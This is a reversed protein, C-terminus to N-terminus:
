FGRKELWEELAQNIIYNQSEKRTAKTNSYSDLRDVLSQPIYIIKSKKIEKVQSETDGVANAIFRKEDIEIKPNDQNKAKEFKKFPNNSM